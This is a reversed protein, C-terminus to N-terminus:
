VTVVTEVKLYLPTKGLQMLVAVAAVMILFAQIEMEVMTARDQLVLGVQSLGAAALVAVAALVV